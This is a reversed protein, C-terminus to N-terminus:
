IPSTAGPLGLVQNDGQSKYPSRKSVGLNCCLQINSVNIKFLNELCNDLGPFTYVHVRTKVAWVGKIGFGFGLPRPSM